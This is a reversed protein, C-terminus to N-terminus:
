REWPKKGDFFSVLQEAYVKTKHSNIVIYLLLLNTLLGGAAFEQLSQYMSEM